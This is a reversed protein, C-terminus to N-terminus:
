DLRGNKTRFLCVLVWFATCTKTIIERERKREKEGESKCPGGAAATKAEPERGRRKQTETDIEVQTHIYTHICTHICAHMCAHMYAHIYTHIYTHIHTHLYTPLYTPLNTLLYTLLYTRIDHICLHIYTPLYVHVYLDAPNRHVNPSALMVNGKSHIVRACAARAIDIQKEAIAVHASGQVRFRNNYPKDLPISPSLSYSVHRALANDTLMSGRGLHLLKLGRPM